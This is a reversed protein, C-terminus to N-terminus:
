RPGLNRAKRLIRQWHRRDKIRMSRDAARDRLVAVLEDGYKTELRRLELADKLQRDRTEFLTLM